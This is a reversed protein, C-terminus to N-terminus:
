AGDNSHCFSVPQRVAVDASQLTVVRRTGSTAGTYPDMTLDLGGWFGVVADAWNGYFVDEDTVQNSVHTTYGNMTNGPEWVFQATGSAKETTKMAGRVTADTIYALTGIDANDAAVATEMAVIEAYTPMAAAFTTTNIGSQNAIGTPQGSSGTGYLVGLDLTLAMQMILDNRVLNEVDISSQLLLQRTYDVYAGMTKPNMTVQDFAPATESAAGGETAIWGITSATTQRPIAPNGVLGTLLTVGARLTVARNRLIDIFSSALLDTSVLHGGATSTGVNLDRKMTAIQAPTLEMMQGRRLFDAPVFLGDPEKEMRKAEAASCELEFGAEERFRPENPFAAVRLARLLSYQRVDNDSMGIEGDEANHQRLHGTDKAKKLVDKQFDVLDVGDNIAKEAEETMGHAVGLASIERCRRTEAERAEDRARAAVKDNDAKADEAARQAADQAAQDDSRTTVENENEKPMDIEKEILTTYPTDDDDRGVGVTTDAPISVISIELPTWDVVRYVNTDDDEGAEELLMRNIRYGVSVNARIGDRVDSLEQEARAGKGFRVVARGVRDNGVTVSEVVGVQERRDHDVLLPATGGGIFDLRIADGGHDLIEDGFYRRYPEESSFALSVRRDDEDGDARADAIKTTRYFTGTKLESTETKKTM